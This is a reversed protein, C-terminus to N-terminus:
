FLYPRLVRLLENKLENCSLRAEASCRCLGLAPINGKLVNLTRLSNKPHEETGCKTNIDNHEEASVNTNIRHEETSVNTNIRHEEASECCQMLCKDTGVCRGQYVSM